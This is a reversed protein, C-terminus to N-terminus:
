NAGDPPREHRRAKPRFTRRSWSASFSSRNRGALIYAEPPILDPIGSQAISIEAGQPTDRLKIETRMEGALHPDDFVDTYLIHTGPTLELYEGGFSHSAGTAFNTFSMRFKGGVKADMQHVDCTFGNPPLWKAIANKDLFARYVREAPARLVRHLRITNPM